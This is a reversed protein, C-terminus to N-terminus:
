ARLTIEFNFNSNLNKIRKRWSEDCKNLFHLLFYKKDVIKERFLIINATHSFNCTKCDDRKQLFFGNLRNTPNRQQSLSRISLIETETYKYIGKVCEDLTQQTSYLCVHTSYSYIKILGKFCSTGFWDSM